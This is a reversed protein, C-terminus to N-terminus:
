SSRWLVTGADRRRPYTTQTRTRIRPRPPQSMHPGVYFGAHPPQNYGVNQWAVGLRYIPDHMFTYFRRDTPITTTFIRLEKNDRTRWIVEERWDGLIDASLAPNAKTGNNAACGLEQAALLVRSRAGVYDWKEITTGNLIERLPDGDWYVGMNCAPSKDAIRNGKCDFMGTIGAGAVWCEFGPYRPDVDLALGRGPGEGDAGVALSLKRWLVAGTRADRFNAGADDFREQIAFVELGPRAPDLDSLHLADGHGLGTTYLGKGSDDLTMSGYVIEDKGDGDVDGVSLNHNGQGGYGPSGASSFSWVKRLNGERWNWAELKTLAYYGRCVVLSPRAGDLYAVAMLFRDVRNGYSDGWGSVRGRPIYPQRAVERGTRGDFISLFEPGELIYGTDPNVYDTRGDGDTDGIRVGTGDTTGEATRVAVEARGDGDLDYVIFPTYHAGERINRGLDIRWLLTGNTKYGELKTTGPTVGRQSPDRGQLEQKVVIEYEGDGDLDGVATDNPTYGDPTQLPVSLYPRSPTNAPLLFPASAAQERGQLVPRVFYANAQSLPVGNDVFNTSRIIPTSNLKIPAAGGTSRYLNFALNDPDTGLLRWGVFVTRDGQRIAILGRGLNEMQRRPGEPPSSVGTVAPVGIGLLGVAVLAVPVVRGAIHTSKRIM